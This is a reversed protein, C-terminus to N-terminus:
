TYVVISAERYQKDTHENHWCSGPDTLFFYTESGKEISNLDIVQKAACEKLCTNYADCRVKM